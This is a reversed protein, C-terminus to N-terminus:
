AAPEQELRVKQGEKLHHVGATAIRAGADIGATVDVTGDGNSTFQVVRMTVSGSAPDILWVASQGDSTLIATAPMRFGHARQGPILTTITSGLRFTEPPSDLTIRVRRARTIQDAQPAIERM